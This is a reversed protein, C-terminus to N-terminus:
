LMYQQARKCHHQHPLVTRTSNNHWEQLQQSSQMHMAAPSLSEYLQRPQIADNAPSAHQM